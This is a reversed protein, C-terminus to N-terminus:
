WDAHTRQESMWGQWDEAKAAQAMRGASAARIAERASARALHRQGYVYDRWSRPARGFARQFEYFGDLMNVRPARRTLEQEGAPYPSDDPM